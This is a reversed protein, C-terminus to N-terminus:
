TSRARSRGNIVVFILPNDPGLPDPDAAALDWLYRAALGSGGVFRRAYDPDLPEDWLRGRDLDVRLLRGTYGPIM